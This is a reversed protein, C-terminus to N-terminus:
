LIGNTGPFKFCMEIIGYRGIFEVYKRLTQKMGFSDVGFEYCVFVSRVLNEGTM